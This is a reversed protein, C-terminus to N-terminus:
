GSERPSLVLATQDDSQPASGQFSAVASMLRDLVARSARGGHELWIQEVREDGFDQRLLNTADPLGDSYLLLSDGPGLRCEGEEYGQDAFIGLPVGGAPLSELARHARRLRPFVHGANVFRLSGSAPELEGYFLTVFRGSTVSDCVRRNLAEITQRPELGLGAFARLASQVTSVLLAAPVGKGAVDAIVVAQRGGALPFYDYFDGGVQRAPQIRGDLEWAGCLVPSAPILQMQIDHAVRLERDLLRREEELRKKDAEEIRLRAKDLVLASHSALISLLQVDHRSWERGPRSDSAAIMGTIRGNVKLPTALLARVPGAHGALGSFRADATIDPSSLGEPSGALYGMVSEKLFRSWSVAGAEPSRRGTARTRAIDEEPGLLKITCEDARLLQTARSVLWDLIPQLESEGAALAGLEALFQLEHPSPASGEIAPNPIPDM